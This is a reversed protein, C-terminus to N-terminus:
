RPSRDRCYSRCRRWRRCRARRRDRVRARTRSDRRSPRLRFDAEGFDLEAQHRTGASRLPQRAQDARLRREFDHEFAVSRRRCPWLVPCGRRLRRSRPPRRRATLSTQGARLAADRPFAANPPLPDGGAPGNTTECACLITGGSSRPPNAACLNMSATSAATSSSKWRPRARSARRNSSSTREAGTPRVAGYRRRPVRARCSGPSGGRLRELDLLGADDAGARHAAADRDRERAGADRDVTTSSSRRASRRASCITIPINM